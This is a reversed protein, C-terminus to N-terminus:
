NSYLQEESVYTWPKGDIYIMNDGKVGVDIFEMESLISSGGSLKKINIKIKTTDSENISFQGSAKTYDGNSTAPGKYQIPTEHSRNSFYISQGSGDTWQGTISDVVETMKSFGAEALPIDTQQVVTTKITNDVNEKQESDATVVTEVNGTQGILGSVPLWKIDTKKVYKENMLRIVEKFEDRKIERNLNGVLGSLLPSKSLSNSVGSPDGIYYYTGNAWMTARMPKLEYDELENQMYLTASKGDNTSFSVSMVIGDEYLTYWDQNGEVPDLIIRVPEGNNGITYMDYVAYDDSILSDYSPNYTAPREGTHIRAIILEPSEDGNINEYTYNMQGNAFSNSKLNINVHPYASQNVGGGQEYQAYETIISEYRGDFHESQINTFFESNSVGNLDNKVIAVTQNAKSYEGMDCLITIKKEYLSIPTVSSDNNNRYHLAKDIADIASTLDGKKEYASTLKLYPELSINIEEKNREKDIEAAKTFHEIAVEFKNKNLASEGAHLNYVYFIDLKFAFLLVVALLLVVCVGTGIIIKTKKDLKSLKLKEKIHLEKMESQAPSDPQEQKLEEQNTEHNTEQNTEQDIETNLEPIIEPEKNGEVPDKTREDDTDESNPLEM